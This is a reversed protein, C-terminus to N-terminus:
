SHKTIKLVFINHDGTLDTPSIGTGKLFNEPYETDCKLSYKKLLTEISWDASREQVTCLFQCGAVSLLTM